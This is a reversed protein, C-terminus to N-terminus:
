ILLLGELRLRLPLLLLIPILLVIGTAGALEPIGGDAGPTRAIGGDCGLLVVALVGGEVLGVGWLTGSPIIGVGCPYTGIFFATGEAVATVVAATPTASINSGCILLFSLLSKM